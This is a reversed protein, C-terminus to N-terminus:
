YGWWDVQFDRDWGYMQSAMNSFYDDAPIKLTVVYVGTDAALSWTRLVSIPSGSLAFAGLDVYIPITKQMTVDNGTLMLSSGDIDSWTDILELNDDWLSSITLVRNWLVAASRGNLVFYGTSAGLRPLTFSFIQRFTAQFEWVFPATLQKTWSDCRFRAQIAGPPTWLFWAGTKAQEALFLDLTNAEIPKLIWKLTWEPSTQNQGVTDVQEIGWNPFKAKRQRPRVSKTAPYIPAYDPLHLNSM